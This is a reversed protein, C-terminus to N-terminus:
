RRKRANAHIVRRYRAFVNAITEYDQPTMRTIRTPQFFRQRYVHEACYLTPVGTRAQRALESVYDDVVYHSFQGDTDIVAHPTVERYLAARHLMTEHPTLRSTYMDGIRQMDTFAALYPNAVYTSICVDRKHRKAEEYLTKLYLRQLELGWVNGHSRLGEGAPLGLLGDVKVGDANLCDPGDSFWRRIVELFRKVYRPNTIDCAIPKGKRTICEEKPLGDKAWANTWVIVRIGRSHCADIWGRMDPWRQRDPEARNPSKAWGADIIVTGPKCDHRELIRVWRDALEQTCFDFARAGTGIGDRDTTARALAVQDHWTCYIPELWWALPKRRRPRPYYGQRYGYQLHKKLVDDRDRALAMVFRPSEWEGHVTLKGDYVAAFGGALANDPGFPTIPITVPPNWEFADWTYHGPKAFLGVSLFLSDRRDHLGMCYCPSACAQAGVPMELDNGTGISFSEGPHFYLKEQFNPCTSYIEDIDGATGREQGQYYGRFFQARTVDGTGAVKYYFEISDNRCVFFCTKKKWLSSREPLRVTLADRGRQLSPKGLSITEDRKGVCNCAGAPFLLHRQHARKLDLFATAEQPRIELIYRSTEIRLAGKALRESKM